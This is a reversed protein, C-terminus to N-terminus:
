EWPKEGLSAMGLGEVWLLTGKQGLTPLDPELSKVLGGYPRLWSEQLRSGVPQWRWGGGGPM